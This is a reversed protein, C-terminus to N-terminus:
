RAMYMFFFHFTNARGPYPRCTTTTVLNEGSSSKHLPHRPQRRRPQYRIEDGGAVNNLLPCGTCDFLVVSVGGRNEPLLLLLLSSRLLFFLTRVKMNEMARVMVRTAGVPFFAFFGSLFHTCRRGHNKPVGSKKRRMANSNRGEGDYISTECTTTHSAM